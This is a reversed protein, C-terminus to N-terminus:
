MSTFTQGDDAVTQTVSVELNGIEKEAGADRTDRKSLRGRQYVDMLLSLQALIEADEPKIKADTSTAEFYWGDGKDTKQNFSKMTVWSGGAPVFKEGAQKTLKVLRDYAEKVSFYKLSTTYINTFSADVMYLARSWKCSDASKQFQDPVNPCLETGCQIIQGKNPGRFRDGKLGDASRCVTKWEGGETEFWTHEIHSFIPFLLTDRPLVKKSEHVYIDGPQMKKLLELAGKQSCIALLSPRWIDGPDAPKIINILTFFKRAADEGYKEGLREVFVEPPLIEQKKEKEKMLRDYLSLGTPAAQAPTVASSTNDSTM